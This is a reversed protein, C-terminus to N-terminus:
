ARMEILTKWELEGETLNRTLRAMSDLVAPLMRTKLASKWKESYQEKSIGMEVIITDQNKFDASLGESLTLASTFIVILIKKMADVVLQV